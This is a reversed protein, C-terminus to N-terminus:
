LLSKSIIEGGHEIEQALTDLRGQYEIAWRMLQRAEKTLRRLEEKCRSYTLYAQIGEQTDPDIAWAENPHTLSGCDLFPDGFEMRELDKMNPTPIKPDPVFEDNYSNAHRLYTALKKRLEENKNARLRILYQQVKTGLHFFPGCLM